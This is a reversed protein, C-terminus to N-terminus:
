TRATEIIVTGAAEPGGYAVIQRKLNDPLEYPAQDPEDAQPSPQQIAPPPLMAYADFPGAKVPSAALLAGATVAAAITQVLLIASLRTRVPPPM